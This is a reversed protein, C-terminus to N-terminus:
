PATHSCAAIVQNMNTIASPGVFACATSTSCKIPTVLPVPGGSVSGQAGAAPYVSALPQFSPSTGAIGTMTTVTPTAATPVGTAMGYIALSDVYVSLGAGPNQFTLTQQSTGNAADCRVAADGRAGTQTVAAGAAAQQALATPVWVAVSAALILALAVLNKLTSMLPSREYHPAYRPGRAIQGMLM